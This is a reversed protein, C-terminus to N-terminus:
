RPPPRLRLTTRFLINSGYVHREASFFDLPYDVGKTLGLADVKVDAKEPDHIGGVNIVLQQNIFVFVDDDGRFSFFEGGQYTFVTHIEVTFSYNHPQHQNGFPTAYPTGDDIPFFMKTPDPASFPVGSKESDYERSGDANETLTVPWEVRVNSGPVDRYWADFAAKGHTTLTTAGAAANKYVPKGDAGLQPAVIEHDDWTTGTKPINEFDPNTTNDNPDYLKFDRITATISGNGLPAGGDGTAGDGFAFSEGGDAAGGDTAGGSGPDFPTNAVSACSALSALSALLAGISQLLALRRM